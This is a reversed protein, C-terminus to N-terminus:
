MPLASTCSPPFCNRRRGQWKSCEAKSEVSSVVCMCSVCVFVRVIKSLTLQVEVVHIAEKGEQDAKKKKLRRVRNIEKGGM